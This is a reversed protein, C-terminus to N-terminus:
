EVDFAFKQGASSVVDQRANKPPDSGPYLTYLAVHARIMYLGVVVTTATGETPLAGPSYEWVELNSQAATVSELFVKGGSDRSLEDIAAAGADTNLAISLGHAATEPLWLSHRKRARYEHGKSDRYPRGLHDEFLAVRGGKGPLLLHADHHPLGRDDLDDDTGIKALHRRLVYTSERIWTLSAESSFKRREILSRMDELLM